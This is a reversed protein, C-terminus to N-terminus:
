IAFCGAGHAVRDEMTSWILFATTMSGTARPMVFNLVSLYGPARDLRKGYTKGVRRATDLCMAAVM